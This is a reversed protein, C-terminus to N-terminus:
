GTLQGCQELSTNGQQLGEVQDAFTDFVPGHTFQQLRQFLLDGGAGAQSVCQAPMRPIEILQVAVQYRGAFLGARKFGQQLAYRNM